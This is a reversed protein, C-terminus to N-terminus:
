VERVIKPAKPHMLHCAVFHTDSVVTEPALYKQCVPMAYPCRPAFPCGKPPRLMDPPTGTIPILKEGKKHNLKPISHLLGWTYPHKPEYFIERATGQECVIGGYMVLIRRCMSAIVGLDHTIMVISTNTENKLNSLLELVQAQITVDQATTPEDAIVLKPQCAVAMAIMVRQRMGGSFEHPYQSLRQEPNPIDVRKLLDLATKRAEAKSMKRHIRLPETLQNEVTYLPNLSTMPDQFIMGIDGGRIKRFESADLKLMDIGGFKILDATVEAYQPLLGMVSLMTVSKGSGSEGVVGLSEGMDLHFSVNRVAQVTGVSIHFSTTLNKVELLTM